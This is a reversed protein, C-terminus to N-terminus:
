EKTLTLVYVPKGPLFPSPRGNEWAEHSDGYHPSLPHGSQGGPMHFIGDEEFGPSVVMRQSPGGDPGMVAPMGEDGPLSRAELNLWDGVAPVSSSFPHEFRIVNRQGWTLNHLAGDGWIRELRSVADNLGAALEADWSGLDPDATYPTQSTVLLWLPEEYDFCYHNFREYAEYCPKLLRTLVRTAVAQRFEKVLYYGSADVAARGKWNGIRDLVVKRDEVAQAEPTELLRLLLDRWRELFFAQDDLQVRLMEGESASDLASLRRRIQHARAGNTFPGGGLAHRWQEGLPRNNGSWVLGSDPQVLRPYDEPKLRAEWQRAGDAFSVPLMGDYEERDVLYGTLTYGIKGSRDGVVCHLAPISWRNFHQFSSEVDDVAEIEHLGLDFDETHHAAWKLAVKDYPFGDVEFVPGWISTRVEQQVPDGGKVQITEKRFEFARPGEPTLYKNEDEPDPEIIVLDLNDIYASTYGWALHGNSGIIIFPLGPLTAGAVRRSQGGSPQLNFAARYWVNPVSFSLHMDNAVMAAGTKTRAGSVAWANSGAAFPPPSPLPSVSDSRDARGKELYGFHADEPVKLIPTQSGDLTAEWASGNEVFFRFVPDPLTHRMVNLSFDHRGSGGKLELYMFYVVMLADEPLWPSPEARLLLYEFPRASLEQMGRNVGQAYARLIEQQEQPLRPFVTKALARFGHLRRRRDTNIMSAGMLASLEGGASRRMMDMQFFRDQAHVFGLARAIDLRNEGLISPIGLEDREIKVPAELEQFRLSGELDPLSAQLLGYAAGLGVLPLGVLGALAIWLIKKRRKM